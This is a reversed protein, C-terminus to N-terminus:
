YTLLLINSNGGRVSMMSIESYFFHFHCTSIYADKNSFQGSKIHADKMKVIFITSFLSFQSLSLKFSDRKNQSM